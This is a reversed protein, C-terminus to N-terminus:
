GGRVSTWLYARHKVDAGKNWVLLETCDDSCDKWSSPGTNLQLQHSIKIVLFVKLPELDGLLSPVSLSIAKM